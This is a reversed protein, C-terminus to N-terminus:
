AYFRGTGFWPQHPNAFLMGRRNVTSRGGIAIGNSGKHEPVLGQIIAPDVTAVHSGLPAAGSAAAPTPPRAAVILGSVFPLFFNTRSIRRFDIEGIQRVWAEGRCNPDPLDDVGVDRLYRNYGAAAGRFLAAQRPDVPEEAEGRDILLQYFLDSAINEQTPGLFLSREAAFTLFQDAMTCVLDEAMAYGTGFGISAFDRAFVHPIGGRTRDVRAQYTAQKDIGYGHGYGSAFASPAAFTGLALSGILLGRLLHSALHRPRRDHM